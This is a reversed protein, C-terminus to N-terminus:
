NLSGEYYAHYIDGFDFNFNLGFREEAEHRMRKLMIGTPIGKTDKWPM